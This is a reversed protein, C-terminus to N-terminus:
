TDMGLIGDAIAAAIKAVLEPEITGTSLRFGDKAEEALPPTPLAIITYFRAPFAICYVEVTHGDSGKERKLKAILYEQGKEFKEPGIWKDGFPAKESERVLYLESMMEKLSDIAM